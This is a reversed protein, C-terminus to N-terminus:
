PFGQRAADGLIQALDAAADGPRAKQKFEQIAKLLFDITVKGAKFAEFIAAINQAAQSHYQRLRELVAKWDKAALVGEQLKNKTLDAGSLLDQLLAGLSRTEGTLTSLIGSFAKQAEDARRAGIEVDHIFGLVIQALTDGQKVKAELLYIFDDLATAGGTTAEEVKQAIQAAHEEIQTAAAHVKSVAKEATDAMRNLSVETATILAHISSSRSAQPM